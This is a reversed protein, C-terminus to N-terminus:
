EEMGYDPNEDIAKKMRNMFEKYKKFKKEVSFKLLVGYIIAYIVIIIIAKIISIDLLILLLTIILISLFTLLEYIIHQNKSCVLFNYKLLEYQKKTM